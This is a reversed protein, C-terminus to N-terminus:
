ESKQFDFVSVLPVGAIRVSLFTELRGNILSRERPSLTSGRNLLALYAFPGGSTVKIDSRLKGEKQYYELMFNAFSANITAKPPLKTNLLALFEPTFAEMFYTIELGREYAGRIGGVFRNYFSLQFPHCLYLDLLPSFAFLVCLAAFVKIKLNAVPQFRKWRQAVTLLWAALVFFGGGALAAVFPLAGLLQRVGDHLVAGPLLGMGTLFVANLAFLAMTSARERLWPVSVIGIIALALIGEPTTVGVVFFPYYWPLQQTSYLEGFFYISFNTEPRYGRSLGQYLFEM